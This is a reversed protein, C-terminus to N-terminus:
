IGVCGYRGRGVCSLDRLARTEGDQPHDPHLRDGRGAGRSLDLAASRGAGSFGRDHRDNQHRGRWEGVVATVWLVLFGAAAGLLADTPSIGGPAFSLALGLVLGGISFEDPIIYHRADTAAIGLLLTLFTALRLAELTAGYRVAAALWILGVALEVIPYIPSIRTGCGRCRGRLVLYSIVPINDYWTIGYGCVPCRSRPSVVSLGEPWRSICVNLFSGVCLGVVAAYVRIMVEPM